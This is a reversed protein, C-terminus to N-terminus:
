EAAELQREAFEGLPTGAMGLAHCYTDILAQEENRETESKKRLALVKRIIKTDLGKNKAETMKDKIDGGLAKMEEQLREIQDILRKLDKQAHSQLNDM